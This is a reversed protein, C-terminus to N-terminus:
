AREGHQVSQPLYDKFKQIMAQNIANQEVVSFLDLSQICGYRISPNQLAQIFADVNANPKIYAVAVDAKLIAQQHKIALHNALGIPLFQDIHRFKHQLQLNLVQINQQFYDRLIQTKIFHPRHDLAYYRELGVLQASLMQAINFRPQLKKGSIQSLCQRLAYKAKLLTMKKWHGYIVVQDHIFCDSLQLPANLFVDDNFYIFKEAINPINWLMSEITLSNFTPLYQEYGKFLERHDILRIKDHHCINEQFFQSLFQPQQQDTVVYITGCDPMYKLISAICFYIENQSSFRTTSVADSAINETLYSQRKQQLQLDSGDVWTIVVDVVHETDKM